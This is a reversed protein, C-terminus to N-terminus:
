SYFVATPVCYRCSHKSEQGSQQDCLNTNLILHAAVACYECEFMNYVLLITLQSSSFCKLIPNTFTCELMANRVIQISNQATHHCATYQMGYTIQADTLKVCFTMFFFTFHHFSQKSQMTESGNRIICNESMWEMYDNHYYYSM